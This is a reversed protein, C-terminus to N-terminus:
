PTSASPALTGSCSASWRCSSAPWPRRASTAVRVARGYEVGPVDAPQLLTIRSVQNIEVKLKEREDLISTLVRESNRLENRMMEIDVTNKGINDAEKRMKDVDARFQQEQGTLIAVEAELRRVDRNVDSRKKDRIKMRLDKGVRNVQAQIADMDAQYKKLYRSNAGPVLKAKIEDVAMKQMMLRDSLQRSTSDLAAAADLEYDTIETDALSALYAQATKLESRARMLDFQIRLLERSYDAVQQVAAQQKFSLTDTDSTGYKEAEEKLDNRKRRVEKDEEALLHDLQNQRSGNSTNRTSSKLRTPTWSQM